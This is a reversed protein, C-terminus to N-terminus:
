RLKLRYDIWNLLKNYHKIVNSQMEEKKNIEDSTNISSDIKDLRVTNQSNTSNNIYANITISATSYTENIESSKSPTTADGSINIHHKENYSITSDSHAASNPSENKNANDERWYDAIEGYLGPSEDQDFVYTHNANEQNAEIAKSDNKESSAVQLDLDKFNDLHGHFDPNGIKLILHTHKETNRGNKHVHPARMIVHLALTSVETEGIHGISDNEENEDILSDADEDNDRIEDDGATESISTTSIFENKIESTTSENSSLARHSANGSIFNDSMSTSEDRRPPVDQQLEETVDSATANELDERRRTENPNNENPSFATTGNDYTTESMASSETMNSFNPLDDSDHTIKDSIVPPVINTEHEEKLSEELHVSGNGSSWEETTWILEANIKDTELPDTGKTTSRLNPSYEEYDPDQYMPDCGGCPDEQYTSLIAAKVYPFYLISWPVMVQYTLQGCRDIVVVQDKSARFREWIRFQPDDQIFIVESESDEFFLNTNAFEEIEYTATIKRWVEIEYDDETKDETLDPPPAIVFFRVDPFGSKRLRTSLSELMVAQRFSYQWAPDLFALVNM